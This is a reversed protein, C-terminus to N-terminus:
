DDKRSDRVRWVKRPTVHMRTIFALLAATFAYLAGLQNQNLRLVGFVVLVPLFTQILGQAVVPEELIRKTWLRM